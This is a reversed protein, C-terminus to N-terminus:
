RGDVDDDDSGDGVGGNVVRLKEKPVTFTVQVVRGEAAAEVDWDEDENEEGYGEGTYDPSDTARSALSSGHGGGYFVSGAHTTRNRLLASSEASGRKAADWDKAGQKQRLMSSNTSVARRPIGPLPDDWDYQDNVDQASLLSKTPSTSSSRQQQHWIDYNNDGTLVHTVSQPRETVDSKRISGFARRVNGAWEVAKSKPGNPQKISSEPQTLWAPGQGMLSGSNRKYKSPSGESDLLGDSVHVGGAINDPGSKHIPQPPPPGYNYKRSDYKSSSSTSPDHQQSTLTSLQSLVMPNLSFPNSRHSSISIGSGSGESLSSLTRNSKDPSASRRGSPEYPGGHTVAPAVGDLWNNESVDRDNLLPLEPLIPPALCAKVPSPPEIFADFGISPGKSYRYDDYPEAEDQPVEEYEDGEDIPHIKSIPRSHAASQRGRSLSGKQFSWAGSPTEALLGTREEAAATSPPDHSNSRNVTGSRAGFPSSIFPSREDTSQTMPQSPHSDHVHFHPRETGLALKRLEQERFTRHQRSHRTRYCFLVVAVASLASVGVGVGVGLGAKQSPSSLPGSSKNPDDDLQSSLDYSTIWSESTTNFLYFQTNPKPAGPSRRATSGAAIEFGGVVLMIGGPLMAAGHGFIGTDKRLGHPSEQAIEWAWASSGGYGAGLRLVALQPEAAVTPEGVWGGFVIIKSGDPSLVATHGSRPEVGTVERKALRSEAPPTPQSVPIYSWSTEPLSFLAVQSTNIFAHQTHGGILVFSQQTLQQGASSNTHVPLLPTMSFGAEPVPPSRMSVASIGYTSVNSSGDPTLLQMDRSYDAASVWSEATNSDSPCMGGFVFIDSPSKQSSRSFTVASALFNPGGLSVGADDKAKHVDLELWNQKSGQDNDTGPELKWVTGTQSKCDGAYIIPLTDGDTIPVVANESKADLFPAPNPLNHLPPADVDFAVSLDLSRLQYGESVSSSSSLIYAESPKETSPVWAYSPNYPANIVPDGAIGTALHLLLSLHLVGFMTTNAAM